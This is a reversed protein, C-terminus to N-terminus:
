LDGIFDGVNVMTVAGYIVWQMTLKWGWAPDGAEEITVAQLAEM